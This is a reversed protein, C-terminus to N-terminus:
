KLKILWAKTYDGGHRILRINPVSQKGSDLETFVTGPLSASIDNGNLEFM